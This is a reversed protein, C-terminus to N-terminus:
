HLVLRVLLYPSVMKWTQTKLRVCHAHAAIAREKSGVEVFPSKLKSRQGFFNVEELPNLHSCGLSNCLMELVSERNRDRTWGAPELSVSSKGDCISREWTHVESQNGRISERQKRECVSIETLEKTADIFYQIEHVHIEQFKNKSHIIKCSSQELAVTKHTGSKRSAKLREGTRRLLHGHPSSEQGVGVEWQMGRIQKETKKKGVQFLKSSWLTNIEWTYTINTYRNNYYFIWCYVQKPSM